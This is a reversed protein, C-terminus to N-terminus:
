FYSLSYSYSRSLAAAHLSLKKVLCLSLESSLFLYSPFSRFPNRLLCLFHSWSFWCAPIQLPLALESIALRINWWSFLWQLWIFWCWFHCNILNMYLCLYEYFKSCWSPLHIPSISLDWHSIGQNALWFFNTIQNMSMQMIQIPLLSHENYLKNM